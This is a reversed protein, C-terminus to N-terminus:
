KSPKDRLGGPQAQCCCIIYRALGESSYLDGVEPKQQYDEVTMPGNLAAQVIPFVDGIWHSYCGDVLKNTRGALGGEPAYQRTSLWGVLSDFDLYRTLTEHPPGLLCLCGVACFVYAGHAENGPTGAIGGEYTQCRSIYTGLRDNFTSLGTARAPSDPPLEIPLSLLSIIVLACYAGRTDEEGGETIRFGGDAQKLRGLWHWMAKRDILRFVDEGGVLAISLLAGYTTALHSNHGHGGGFGGSHNQLSFFTSIV